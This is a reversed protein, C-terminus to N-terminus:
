ESTERLKGAKKDWFTYHYACLWVKSGTIARVRHMESAPHWMTCVNCEAVAKNM